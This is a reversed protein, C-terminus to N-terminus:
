REYGRASLRRPSQSRVLPMVKTRYPELADPTVVCPSITTTFNRGNLLGLSRAEFRQVNRVSWDNMLVFGLIHDEADQVEVPVGQDNGQDIFASFEALGFPWQWLISQLSVVLMM